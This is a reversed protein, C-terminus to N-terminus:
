GRPGLRALEEERALDNYHSKAWARWAERDCDGPAGTQLDVSEKMAAWAVLWAERSLDLGEGKAAKVAEYRSRTTPYEILPKTDDTM